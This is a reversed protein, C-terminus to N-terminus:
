RTDRVRGRIASYLQAGLDLVLSHTPFNSCENCELHIRTEESCRDDQVVQEDPEELLSGVAVRLLAEKVVHLQEQADGDVARLGEALDLVLRVLRHLLGLLRGVVDDAVVLEVTIHPLVRHLDQHLQVVVALVERRLQQATECRGKVIDEERSAVVPQLVLEDPEEVLIRLSVRGATHLEGLELALVALKFIVVGGRHRVPRHALRRALHEEREVAMVGLRLHDGDLGKRLGDEAGLDLSFARRVVAVATEGEVQPRVVDLEVYTAVVVREGARERSALVTGM